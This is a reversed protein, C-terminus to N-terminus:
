QKKSSKTRKEESEKKGLTDHRQTETKRDRKGEKGREGRGNGM